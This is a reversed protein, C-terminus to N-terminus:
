RNGGTPPWPASGTLGPRQDKAPPDDLVRQVLGDHVGQGHRLSVEPLVDGLRQVQLLPIELAEGRAKCDSSSDPTDGNTCLFFSRRLNTM